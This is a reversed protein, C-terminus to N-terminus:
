TGREQDTPLLLTTAPVGNSDKIGGTPQVDVELIVSVLRSSM